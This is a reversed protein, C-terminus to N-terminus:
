TNNVTDTARESLTIIFKMPIVSCPQRVVCPSVRDAKAIGSQLHMAGLRLFHYATREHPLITM